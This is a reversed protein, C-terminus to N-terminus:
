TPYVRRSVNVDCDNQEVSLKGDRLVSLDIAKKAGKERGRMVGRAFIVADTEGLNSAVRGGWGAEVRTDPITLIKSVM